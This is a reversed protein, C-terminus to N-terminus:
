AAQEESATPHTSEPTRAFSLIVQTGRSPGPAFSMKGGHEEVIKSVIALGLGAVGKGKGPNRQLWVPTFRANFEKWSAGFKGTLDEGIGYDLGAFGDKICGELESGGAGLRIRKYGTM